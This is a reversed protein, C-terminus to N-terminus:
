EPTVKRYHEFFGTVLVDGSIVDYTDTLEKPITISLGEGKASVRLAIRNNIKNLLKADSVM